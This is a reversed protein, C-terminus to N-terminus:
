VWSMTLRQRRDLASTSRDARLGRFGASPAALALHLLPDGHQRRHQPELHLVRRVPIRPHLPPDVPDGSRSLQFQRGPMFATINSLFGANLTRASRDPDIAQFQGLTLPLANLQAQSPATFIRRCAVTDRHGSYKDQQDADARAPPRRPHRPLPSRLHLRQPLRAPRRHEVPDLVAAEPRPHLQLHRRPCRGASLNSGGRCAAPSSAATPSSRLRSSTRSLQRCRYTASLQPPYATSGVNDFIVDYAM